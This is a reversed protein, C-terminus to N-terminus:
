QEKLIDAIDPFVALSRQLIGNMYAIATGYNTIPVGEDAACKLRYQMERESLMCGGCHIVLKYATLHDAFETGSTWEFQLDDLGTYKRILAPLKVTGIDGCQRHHTCGESILIRDGSQLCDLAKVGEVALRLNGKYNAFLISFSTLLIDAPTDKSVGAFAQSDTIVLAPKKQLAAITQPLEQPQTVVATCHHDLLDRITQQQPLILRGKPASEDIPVVLIVIDEKRLMHSVITKHNERGKALSAIKDRLAHIQEGTRASVLIANENSISAPAIDSKNYVILYPIQKDHFRTILAQDEESLGVDAAVVLVAIDTKNLVQYSKKVRLQGLEGEDDIGPTDIIVVPGLPLLEMAKSVPDTTTGATDSVIALDQNTVANVISSKGANRKGFFAIHLRDASPTQNLSM